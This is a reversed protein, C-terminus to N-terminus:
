NVVSQLNIVPRVSGGTVTIRFVAVDAIVHLKSCQM